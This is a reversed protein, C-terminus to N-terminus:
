QDFRSELSVNEADVPSWLKLVLAYSTLSLFSCRRGGSTVVILYGVDVGEFRLRSHSDCGGASWEVLLWNGSHAVNAVSGLATPHAPGIGAILGTRDDVAVTHGFWDFLGTAPYRYEFHGGSTVASLPTIAIAVAFVAIALTRPRRMPTM